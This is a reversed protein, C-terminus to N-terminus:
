RDGLGDGRRRDGGDDRTWLAQPTYSDTYLGGVGPAPELRAPTSFRQLTNLGVVSVVGLGPPVSPRRDNAVFDRGGARYSRLTTGFLRDLDGASGEAQLYTGAADVHTIDLGGGRLWGEVAALRAAPVGFRAAVGDPTLFRHYSPSAPDYLADFLAREGAPDTPAVGIGVRMATLPSPLGLPALHDLGPLVNDTVVAAAPAPLALMAARLGAAGSIVLAAAVAAVSV